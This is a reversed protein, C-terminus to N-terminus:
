RLECSLKQGEKREARAGLSKRKLTDLKNRSLSIVIPIKVSIASVCSCAQVHKAQAATFQTDIAISNTLISRNLDLLM